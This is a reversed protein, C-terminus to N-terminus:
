MPTVMDSVQWTLDITLHRAKYFM